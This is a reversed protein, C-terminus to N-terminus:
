RPRTEIQRWKGPEGAAAPGQMGEERVRRVFIVEVGLEAPPKGQGAAGGGGPRSRFEGGMADLAIEDPGRSQSRSSTWTQRVTKAPADPYIAQPISTGNGM